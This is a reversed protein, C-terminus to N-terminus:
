IFYELTKDIFPICKRLIFLIYSKKIELNKKEDFNLSFNPINLLFTKWYLNLHGGKFNINIKENMGELYKNNMEIGIYINSFDTNLLPFPKNITFEPLKININKKVQNTIKMIFLDDIIFYVRYINGVLEVDYLLDTSVLNSINIMFIKKYINQINGNDIENNNLVFKRGILSDVNIEYSFNECLIDIDDRTVFKNVDNKNKCYLIRPNLIYGKENNFDFINNM